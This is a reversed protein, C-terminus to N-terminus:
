KSNHGLYTYHYACYYLFDQTLMRYDSMDDPYSADHLAILKENKMLIKRIENCVMEYGQLVSEFKSLSPLDVGTIARFDYYVSQKYLYHQNPYRLTLYVSIARISQMSKDKSKFNGKLKNDSLITETDSLFKECREDLPISEDYLNRLALRIEETSYKAMQSLMSLPFYFPGALLNYSPAMSEKLNASLDQAAINFSQQFIKIADWKYKEQSVDYEWDNCYSEIFPLLGEEVDNGLTVSTLTVKKKATNKRKVEEEYHMVGFELPYQRTTSWSRALKEDLSVVGDEDINEIIKLDTLFLRKLDDEDSLAALREKRLAEHLAERTYNKYRAATKASNLVGKMSEVHKLRWQKQDLTKPDLYVVAEWVAILVDDLMLGDEGKNYALELINHVIRKNIDIYSKEKKM